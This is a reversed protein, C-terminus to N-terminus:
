SALGRQQARLCSARLSGYTIEKGTASKLGLKNLVRARERWTMKGTSDIANVAHLLRASTIDAKAQRNHLSKTRGKVLGKRSGWEKDPHQKKFEKFAAKVRMSIAESESKAISLLCTLLMENIQTDGLNVSRIQAIHPELLALSSLNRAIRDIRGVILFYDPNKSIFDLASTLGERENNRGSGVDTFVDHVFYNNKEAFQNVWKQQVSFSLEQAETSKRIYAVAKKM